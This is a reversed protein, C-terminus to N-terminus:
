RAEAIKKFWRGIDTNEDPHLLLRRLTGIQTSVSPFGIHKISVHLANEDQIIAGESLRHRAGTSFSTSLGSLFGEHIPAVIGTTVGMRYAM